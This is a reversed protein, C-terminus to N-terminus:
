REQVEVYGTLIVIQEAAVAHDKRLTGTVQMVAGAQLDTPNGMVIKTHENSQM